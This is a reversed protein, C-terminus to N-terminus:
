QRRSTLKDTQTPRYNRYQFYFLTIWFLLTSILTVPDFVNADTGHWSFNSFQAIGVAWLLTYITIFLYPVKPKKEM